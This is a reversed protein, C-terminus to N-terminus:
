DDPTGLDFNEACRDSPWEKWGQKEAIRMLMSQVEEAIIAPLSKNEHRAVRVVVEEAINDALVRTADGLKM